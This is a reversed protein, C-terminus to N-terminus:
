RRHRRAVHGNRYRSEGLDLIKVDTWEIENAWAVEKHNEAYDTVREEATDPDDATVFFDLARAHSGRKGANRKYSFAIMWEHPRPGRPRPARARGKRSKRPSKRNRSVPKLTKRHSRYRLRSRKRQTPRARGAKRFQENAGHRPLATKRAKPRPSATRPKKDHPQKRAPARRAPARRPTTKAKKAPKRRAM